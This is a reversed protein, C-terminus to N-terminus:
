VDYYSSYGTCCLKKLAVPLAINCIFYGVEKHWKWFFPVKEDLDYLYSIRPVFKMCDDIVLNFNHSVFQIHKAYPCKELLQV